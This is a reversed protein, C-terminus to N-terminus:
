TALEAGSRGARRVHSKAGRNEGSRRTPVLHKQGERTVSVVPDFVTGARAFCSSCRSTRSSGCRCARSAKPRNTSPSPSPGGPKRGGCSRNGTAARFDCAGQVVGDVKNAVFYIELGDDTRRHTYRLKGKLSPDCSFDAALEHRGPGEGAHSGLDRTGQRRPTRRKRRSGANKGWLEDALRTVEQDCEPFGALSPSKLPRTGLVTAGAEVLEKIRRLLQPTMTEVKPLPSVTYVYNGEVHMVPRGDANYSPLVLLRYSMGSPLVVRGDQVTMGDLVLEAPCGDFNYAPRDPIAGCEAAPIPAVFRHPGGEPAVFCVDAVFQGQRLMHQCRAVYEHWPKSQEWWTLSRHFVTGIFLFSVGPVRDPWPQM